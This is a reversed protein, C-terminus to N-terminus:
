TKALFGVKKYVKNLTKYASRSAKEAGAKMVQMLYAKDAMLRKFEAQVPSLFEVVAEGVRNKFTAYDSSEFETEAASVSVGACSSYITLLNSIGPKSTRDYKISVDSDTVARKFKRLIDEPKDLLLIYGNANDDSKSMKVMPDSLSYVKAGYKPVIPEPLVFTPSFKNNFRQAITRALEVHQKQDQGVPVFDAQYLLIDAAMLVPYDFLGVNINEPAKKSKDKFQTMRKAEGFQTYCNLVWALEAHASVHSQIFLTCKEPDLGLALFLAIDDITNQRFEAPTIDVTISHMDAICYICDSGEDSQMAVWNKLAGVYNGLTMSGTPKIASFIIKKRPEIISSKQLIGSVKQPEISSNQLEASAKQPKASSNQLEVSAKQPEISGAANNNVLKDNTLDINKM